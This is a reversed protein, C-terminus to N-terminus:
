GGHPLFLASWVVWRRFLVAAKALRDRYQQGYRTAELQRSNALPSLVKSAAPM